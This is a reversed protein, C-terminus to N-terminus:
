ITNSEQKKCIYFIIKNSKKYAKFVDDSDLYQGISLLNLVIPIQEGKEITIKDIIKYKNKKSELFKPEKTEIREGAVVILKYNHEPPEKIRLTSM